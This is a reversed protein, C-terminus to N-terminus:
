ETPPLMSGSGNHTDRFEVIASMIEDDLALYIESKVEDSYVVTLEGAITYCISDGKYESRRYDTDEYRKNCKVIVFPKDFGKIPAFYETLINNVGPKNSVYSSIVQSSVIEDKATKGSTEPNLKDAIQEDTPQKFSGDQAKQIKEKENDSALM